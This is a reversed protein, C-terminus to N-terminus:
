EHHLTRSPDVRAARRAPLTGAALAVGTVVLVAGTVALPDAPSVGYLVSSLAGSVGMAAALGVAAGVLVPVMTRRLMLAIVSRANAGLAIRVGIEHVRRSVAYAVVGYVGVSALVLALAALSTSLSSVLSALGRWIELNEELPMVRTVLGPDIEAAAARIGAATAALEAGGKVLLQLGTQWDANTPFYAYSPPIEGIATIQADKAVGVVQYDRRDLEGASNRASMTLTQGIPDRDPWLRRATAETVIIATSGAGLESETFTRGVVIPLEILSFYDPSVVNFRLPFPQDGDPLRATSGMGGQSLPTMAAQAVAEVGPLTAVREMLQRWFAAARGADYRAGTLDFSAVAVNEYAFGPEVTQAANLGRLLLGAPIMLVMCVAVQVGVLVGHLRNTSSPGAGVDAKMAAHLDSKSARLAPLLGFLVGSALTLVASFALVRIDPTADFGPPERSFTSLAFVVLSQFSWMALLSGLAGGIVAILLSEALLQQVIRGRSAGLSRRVAIERSRSTARALLLNAVNACALLLVLGFASMVVIAAALTQERDEPSSNPSARAAVLKTERPPNQRDIQAAIVSLEARVADFGTADAKRGILSLWSWEGRYEDQSPRLLPQASIPAFYSVPQLAVGRVGEPAVGVVTFPQRNLLVDRGVIGADAAFSSTWVEHTLVVTPTAGDADCDRPFGPGLALPQQLVDFYNCTVLTGVIERPVEAGLTVVYQGTYGMIGSLTRTGDRYARYESTSFRSVDGSRPRQRTTDDLIQHIAVLEDAGPAPLERLALGNFVSFIGTNIGVGLAITIVAAATFGPTAALRRAAYPLDNLLHRM